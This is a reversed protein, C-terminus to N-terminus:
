RARSPGASDFYASLVRAARDADEERVLVPVDLIPLLGASTEGPLISPIGEQELINRAVDADLIATPGSFTRVRVTKVDGLEKAKRRPRTGSVLAVDCSECVETGEVYEAFCEPCYPM